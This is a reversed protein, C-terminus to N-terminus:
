EHSEGVVVGPNGAVIAFAPVNKTVVACAGVIAGRGIRVGKLVTANFGIWADDEIAVAKAIVDELITPHGTRHIASLHDRRKRASLSHANHDHINVGHSILVRNGITVTDMSWIRTEEGLYCDDGVAIRGGHPFVQLHSLVHTNAGISIRSRDSTENEIRCGAHLVTSDHTLSRSRKLSEEGRDRHTTARYVLQALVRNALNSLGHQRTM